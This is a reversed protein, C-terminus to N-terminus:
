IYIKQEKYVVYCLTMYIYIYIYIINKIVHCLIMYLGCPLVVGDGDGAAVGDGAPFPAAVGGLRHTHTHSLPSSPPSPSADSSLSGSLSLHLSLSENSEIRIHLSHPRALALSSWAITQELGHSPRNWVMRHGTGSWAIAQELGHSPRNWVMHHDTGSWAITQEPGHSPRARSRRCLAHKLRATRTLQSSWPMIQQSSWPM